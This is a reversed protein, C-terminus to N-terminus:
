IGLDDITIESLERDSIGALLALRNAQNSLASEFLNRMDRGNAFNEPRHNCLQELYNRLHKETDTALVMDNSKCFVEFIEFLEDKSYDEFLISKNFRSKLGPNSELFDEMPGPYGAVIVVFNERNDEMAKLITDIAEQGFDGGGKALTYAEDIFLIGGMAENIKEKTKLATQGVYGAVLGARDVEVLQGKELVGLQKYIKSILRAVTTKGTGPNGLFVLHRSVNPVKYGRNKRIKNIKLLNILSNVEQKVRALGILSNLKDLLEEITEEPENLEELKNDKDCREKLRKDEAQVTSEEMVSTDNELISESYEKMTKLQETFRKSDIDKKDYRSLTYFRGIEVACALYLSSLRVGKGNTLKQDLNCLIEFAEPIAGVESTPEIFRLAPAIYTEKFLAIRDETGAISIYKIFNLIEGVTMGEIDRKEGIALLIPQVSRCASLLNDLANKVDVVM